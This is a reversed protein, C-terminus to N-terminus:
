PRSRTPIGYSLGWISGTVWSRGPANADLGTLVTRGVPVPADPLLRLDPLGNM